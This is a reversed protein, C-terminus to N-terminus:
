LGSRKPDYGDEAKRTDPDYADEKKGTKLEQGAATVSGSEKDLDVRHDVKKMVRRARLKSFIIVQSSFLGNYGSFVFSLMCAMGFYPLGAGGFVEAALLISTIMTNTVGAFMAAFGVAAAFGAPIGLLQGFVCGFTAGIYFTPVIEGGKFGAELTIATFLIKVAFDWPRAQGQGIARAIVDVGAGNYDQSGALLTLCVIVAGGALVRLYPNKLFRDYFGKTYHLAMVFVASVLGCLAALIMVKGMMLPSVDPAEIQFRVPAAGMWVAVESALISAIMGPVLAAHKVMGVSIVTAVFVAATVPTGFLAAFFAAMGTMTAIKKDEDDFRFMQGIHNGIDGGIQLAAGERGASGGFLHTLVTGIFIAPILRFKLSDGEVASDFVANTGVGSIKLKQYMFVILLGAAPLFFILWGNVSRLQTAASVCRAFAGGTVGCVAGTVLSLIIWKVFYGLYDKAWRRGKELNQDTMQELGRRKRAAAAFM